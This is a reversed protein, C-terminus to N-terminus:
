IRWTYDGGIERTAEKLWTQEEEDMYPSLKEYVQRHYENLLRVDSPEMLSLDVADLDIPAFTMTEFCMFQGYMNKEAKQCILLNETRIGHSGEIYLGPEDSQFMGEELVCSDQREPVIRWRIGNPREHVSSLYGVGHGTGHNFDMYREWLPGRALYDVNMGRCGYLFKANALRLNGMLVLTFNRKEEETVPGMVITRTVDTTGEYYQAGSDVLYFGDTGIKSEEEKTAHYHCMAANSGYASITDFSPCLYGEQEKRFEELREAAETETLEMTGINKKLWYIFKTLAVGDKLHAKRLNEIEVPNKVAKMMSTPNMAEVLRNGDDIASYLAFNVKNPELLIVESCLKSVADYIDGYPELSVGNEKLYAKVDDSLKTDNMFLRISDATVIAHATPLLNGDQSNKRINFLWAIDDLSSLIHVSAGYEAMKARLRAIKSATSEGAFEVGLVWVEPAMLEPRNTWVDGALDKGISLSGNKAKVIAELGRGAGTNVVRGDLGLVGGEPFKEKLFEEITPVGEDGMRMLEVDQGALQKKAQVFYRGDTWLGAFDGTVLLTGASGTFGSIYARCRFYDEVYESDHFDSSPIFYADMGNAKMMERLKELRENAM